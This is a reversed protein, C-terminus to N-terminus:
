KTNKEKQVVLVPVKASTIVHRVTDGMLIDEFSSRGKVGMVILDCNEEDAIKVIVKVPHGKEVIVKKVGTEEGYEEKIKTIIESKQKEFLEKQKTFRNAVDKSSRDMGADFILLSPIEDKIVHLLTVRANYQEAISKAYSCAHKANDSFDTAYLIHEFDVKPVEM